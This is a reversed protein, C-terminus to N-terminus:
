GDLGALAGDRPGMRGRRVSHACRHVASQPRHPGQGRRAPSRDVRLPVAGSRVADPRTRRRHAPQGADPLPQGVAQGAHDRSSRRLGAVPRLRARQPLDEDVLGRGIWPATSDTRARERNVFWADHIASHELAAVHRLGHVGGIFLLVAEAEGVAVVHFVMVGDDEFEQDRPFVVGGSRMAGVNDDTEWSGGRLERVGPGRLFENWEM